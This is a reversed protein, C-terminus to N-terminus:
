EATPLHTRLPEALHVNSAVISGGSLWDDSGKADTVTGGAEQVLLAGAAVDHPRLGYEWFGDYRGAAVFALDIAASGCRRIGRTAAAIRAFNDFNPWRERDYAFGTAVLAESLQTTDSVALRLSRTNMFAGGGRQAFFVDGTYPMYIAGCLMAAEELRQVAISVAFFPHGHLFNTTGDIPDIIWRRHTGESAGGEEALLADEPFRERIHRVIFAESHRDVESVLERASKSEVTGRFRGLPLRQMVLKGAERAIQTTLDTLETLETADM